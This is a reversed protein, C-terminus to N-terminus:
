AKEVTIMAVPGSWGYVAPTLAARKKIWTASTGSAIPGGKRTQRGARGRGEQAAGTM